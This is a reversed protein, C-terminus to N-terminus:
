GLVFSVGVRYTIFNADSEVPDAVWGGGPIERLGAPTLYKARGTRHYVATLDLHFPGDGREFLKVSLGAGVALALNFDRYNNTAAIREDEHDTFVDTRTLFCSLGVTGYAYPRFPGKFLFVQPGIRGSLLWHTTVVDVSDVPSTLGFPRRTGEIGYLVVSGEARVAVHGRDGRGSFAGLGGGIGAAVQERFEGIPEALMAWFFVEGPYPVEEPDEPQATADLPVTVLAAACPLITTMRFRCGFM